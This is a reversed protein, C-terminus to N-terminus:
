SCSKLDALSITSLTNKLIQNITQWPRQTPCANELQCSNQCDTLKIPGELAEIIALLSITAPDHALAYGGQVGRSSELWGGKHLQKLLKSVTTSPVGSEEALERTTSISGKSKQALYVMLIIAYDTLKHVRIM